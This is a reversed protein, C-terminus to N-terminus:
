RGALDPSVTLRSMAAEVRNRVHLKQMINTMYHKVTKESLRLKNAVEKNTQGAAVYELIEEERRTLDSRACANGAPKRGIEAMIRGALSPTVITEGRHVAVMMNVLEAGGIGKIVYGRAGAELGAFVDVDSDSATLFLIKTLSCAQTIEKAAEIGNGPISIDLLVLDPCGNQVIDVADKKSCGEAVIEFLGSQRLTQAVGERFLPHDDIVAVRIRESAARKDPTLPPAM